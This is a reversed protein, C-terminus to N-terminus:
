GAKKDKLIIEGKVFWAFGFAWIMIWELLLVPKITSIATNQGLGLYLALLIICAVITWGCIVYVKNRIKKEDSMSKVKKAGSIRFDSVTEKFGTRSASSKTFLVLSFFALVAFLCTASSFHVVREWSTGSNPFLAVCLAFLWALKGAVKDMKEYGKYAFLIWGIVFLIGVFADRTRLSYYDSLSDQPPWGSIFFGWILLVIPLAIGLGGVIGRLLPVNLGSGLFQRVPKEVGVLIQKFIPRGKKGRNM